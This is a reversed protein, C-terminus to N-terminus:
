IKLFVGFTAVIAGISILAASGILMVNQFANNRYDGLLEEDNAFRFLFYFMVPLILGNIFNAVLTIKFLSIQPLFAIVVGLFIQLLFFSYFLRSKKFDTDLSGEYGFFEAFAYATSLPVIICGLIGAILLGYGFFIGALEGAFPKIALAAEAADKIVIGNKFLTAIVAVMMFLSFLDTLFSGIYVELREYKLRATTIKKDKISSNIFFQGWLTVTTGLVAISTFIYDINLKGTPIFLSKITLGWDPKALVASLFYSGYFFILLFFFKEIIKYSSKVIFIFLLGLILPLLIRYDLRFLALASKVGSVNQVIVIMNVFFTVVFVPIAIRIGFRERVLDGMGKGTVVALRAGIEQTIALVITIPILTTLIAYGFKSAAVSYTAVGAADNDAFATIIGPGLITLFVIIRKLNKSLAERL